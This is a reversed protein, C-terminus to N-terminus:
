STLVLLVHEDEGHRERGAERFGLRELLRVSGANAVAPDAHLPRHPERELFLAVARTGVGRGWFERGLWYGLFRREGEWWAVVNGALRGDVTVAQVFVTPDGLVRTRWHSLFRERERPPFRSRRVAEPDHEQALFVELDADAVERLRIVPTKATRESMGGSDAVRWQCEVAVGGGVVLAAGWWWCGGVGDGAWGM